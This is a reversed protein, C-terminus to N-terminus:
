ALNGNDSISIHIEHNEKVGWLLGKFVDTSNQGVFAFLRLTDNSKKFVWPIRATTEEKRTYGPLFEKSYQHKRGEFDIGYFDVPYPLINYFVATYRTDFKKYHNPFVGSINCINTNTHFKKQIMVMRSKEKSVDILPLMLNQIHCCAGGLSM